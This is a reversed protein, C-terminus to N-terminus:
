LSRGGWVALFVLGFGFLLIVSPSNLHIDATNSIKWTGIPTNPNDSSVIQGKLPGNLAAQYTAESVMWTNKGTFVLYNNANNAGAENGPTVIFMGSGQGNNPYFFQSLYLRTNSSQFHDDIPGSNADEIKITNHESLDIILSVASPTSASISVSCVMLMSAIFAIVLSKNNNQNNQARMLYLRM